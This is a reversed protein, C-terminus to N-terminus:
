LAVNYIIAAFWTNIGGHDNMYPKVNEQSWVHTIHIYKMCEYIAQREGSEM